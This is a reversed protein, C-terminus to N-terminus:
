RGSSSNPYFGTQPRLPVADETFRMRGTGWAPDFTNVRCRLKTKFSVVLEPSGSHHSKERGGSGSWVGSSSLLLSSVAGARTLGSNQERVALSARGDAGKGRTAGAM